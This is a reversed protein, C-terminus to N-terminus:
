CYVDTFTAWEMFLAHCEQIGRLKHLTTESPNSVLVITHTDAGTRSLLVPAFRCNKWDWWWQLHYKSVGDRTLFFVDSWVTFACTKQQSCIWSETKLRSCLHHRLMRLTRHKFMVLFASGFLWTCDIGVPAPTGLDTYHRSVPQVVPLDLNSGRCPCLIKEKVETDLGARLDVWGGTCHTDPTRERPTFRPRPTVSVV